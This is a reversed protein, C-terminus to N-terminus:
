IKDPDRSLLLFGFKLAIEKMVKSTINGEGKQSEEIDYYLSTLSAMASHEGRRERIKEKGSDDSLIELFFITEEFEKKLFKKKLEERKYVIFSFSGIHSEYNGNEGKKWEIMGWQTLRVLIRTLFLYHM